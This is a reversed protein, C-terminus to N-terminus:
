DNTEVQEARQKITVYNQGIRKLGTGMGKYRNVSSAQKIKISHMLRVITRFCTSASLQKLTINEYSLIHIVNQYKEQRSTPM